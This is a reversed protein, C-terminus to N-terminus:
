NSDTKVSLDDIAWSEDSRTQLSFGPITLYVATFAEAGCPNLGKFTLEYWSDTVSSFLPVPVDFGTVNSGSSGTLWQAAKGSSSNPYSQQVSKQNSFNTTFLDVLSNGCKASVQWNDQGFAGNQAQQGRGDWSGIAYFDFSIEYSKANPLIGIVVQENNLRGLVYDDPRAPLNETLVSAAAQQNADLVTLSTNSSGTMSYGDASFSFLNNQLNGQVSLAQGSPRRAYRPDLDATVDPATSETCAATLFVAFSAAFIRKM